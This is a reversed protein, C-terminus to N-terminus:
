AEKAHALLWEMAKNARIDNQLSDIGYRDEIEARAREVPIDRSRAIAAIRSDVEGRSAEIKEADAIRLLIYSIKLRRQAANAATEVLAAQQEVLRERDVGNRLSEQVIQQITSRTEQDVLTRPVDFPTNRLLYESVENSRRDADRREAEQELRTRFVERLAQPSEIGLRKCFAEDVEPISRRRIGKVTVRYHVTRGRLAEVPEEDGFTTDFERVAGVTAGALVGGMGPIVMAESGVPIWTDTGSARRGAEPVVSALPQADAMGEYDATVADGEAAAYGEPAEAFDALRNRIGNVNEEVQDDTVSVDERKVPIGEYSPLEFDPAVDVSVDCVLGTAADLAVNEVDVVAVISLGEQKIAERYSKPVVIRRFEEDISRAYKREILPRPAKGKRFGSISGEALFMRVVDEYDHRVDESPVEIHLRRRCPEPTQVEVKMM